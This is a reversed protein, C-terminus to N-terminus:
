KGKEELCFLNNANSPHDPCKLDIPVFPDISEKKHNSKLKREHILKYCYDCFYDLCEFCLSTSNSGCFDCTKILQKRKEM